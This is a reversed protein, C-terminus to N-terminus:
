KMVQWEFTNQCETILDMTFENEDQVTGFNQALLYSSFWTNITESCVLYKELVNQKELTKQKLQSFEEETKITTFLLRITKISEYVGEKVPAINKEYEDLGDKIKKYSSLAEPKVFADFSIRAIEYDLFLRNLRNVKELAVATEDKTPVNNSEQSLFLFVPHTQLYSYIHEINQTILDISEIIRKQETMEDERLQKIIAITQQRIEAIEKYIKALKKQHSATLAMDVLQIALLAMASYPEPSILVGASAASFLRQKDNEATIFGYGAMALGVFQAVETGLTRSTSGFMEPNNNVFQVLEKKLQEKVFEKALEKSAEELETSANAIGSLSITLALFISVAKKLINKMKSM